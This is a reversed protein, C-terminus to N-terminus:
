QFHAIREILVDFYRQMIKAQKTLRAREDEDLKAFKETDLFKILRQLKGDLETKEDIVRQQYDEM